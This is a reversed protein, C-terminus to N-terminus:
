SQSCLRRKNIRWNRNRRKKLAEPLDVARMGNEQVYKADPYIPKDVFLEIMGKQNKRNMAKILYTTSDPLEMRYLFKGNEDAEGIEFFSRSSSVLTLKAGAYPKSLLGNRVSGSITQSKEPLIELRQFDGRLSKPNDYRTWGHTMLYTEYRM